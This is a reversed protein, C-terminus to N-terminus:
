SQFNVDVIQVKTEKELRAYLSNEIFIQQKMIKISGHEVEVWM